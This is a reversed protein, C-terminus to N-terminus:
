FEVENNDQKPFISRLLKQRGILPPHPFGLRDTQGDTVLNGTYVGWVVKSIKLHSVKLDRTRNQPGTSKKVQSKKWQAPSAPSLRSFGFFTLKQDNLAMCRTFCAQSATQQVRSIFCMAPGENKRGLGKLRAPSLTTM